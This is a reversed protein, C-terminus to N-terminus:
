WAPRSRLGHAQLSARGAQVHGAHARHLPTKEDLAKGKYSVFCAPIFLADDRLFMPSSPDIVLYGGATHTARMGGNPYSSGDTEGFLIHKGKLEYTTTGDRNFELMSMQVQGTDGHRFTAAMPQFWHCFSTAGKDLAWHLMAKAIKDPNSADNIWSYDELDALKLGEKKLYKDAIAGKFVDEGFGASLHPQSFSRSSVSPDTLASSPPFRTRAIRVSRRLQTDIRSLANAIAIRAIRSLGRVRAINMPAISCEGGDVNQGM